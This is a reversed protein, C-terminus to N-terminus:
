MAIKTIFMFKEMFMKTLSLKKDLNLLKESAKM